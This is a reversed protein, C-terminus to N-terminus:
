RILNRYGISCATFLWRTSEVQESTQGTDFFDDPKVESEIVRQDNTLMFQILIPDKCKNFVSFHDNDRRYGWVACDEAHAM